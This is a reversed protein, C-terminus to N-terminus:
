QEVGKLAAQLTEQMKESLREMSRLVFFEANNLVGEQVGADKATDICSFADFSCRLDDLMNLAEMVHAKNM